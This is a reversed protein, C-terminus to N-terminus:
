AAGESVEFSGDRKLTLLLEGVKIFLQGQVMSAEVPEYRVGVHIWDLQEQLLDFAVSFDDSAETFPGKIEANTHLKGRYYSHSM